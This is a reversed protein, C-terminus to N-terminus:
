HSDLIFLRQPMRYNKHQSLVAKAIWARYFFVLLPVNVFEVGGWSFLCMSFKRFMVASRTCSSAFYCNEITPWHYPAFTAICFLVEVFAHFFIRFFGLICLIDILSFQNNYTPKQLISFKMFHIESILGKVANM